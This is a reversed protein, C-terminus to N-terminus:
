SPSWATWTLKLLGWGVAFISSVARTLSCLSNRWSGSPHLPALETVFELIDIGTLETLPRDDRHNRFWSLLRRAFGLYISRGSESLSRVDHLHSDYRSLIPEFPDGSETAAVKSLVGRDSLHELVHRMMTPADRFTGRSPLEKNFFRRILEEDISEANEVGVSRAFDNFKGTMNLIRQGSGKKFGLRHLKEALAEIHEALPKRRLQRLRHATQYFYELM